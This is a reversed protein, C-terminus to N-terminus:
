FKRKLEAPTFLISLWKIFIASLLLIVLLFSSLSSPDNDLDELEEPKVPLADVEQVENPDEYPLEESEEPLPLLLSLSSSSTPSPVVPPSSSM